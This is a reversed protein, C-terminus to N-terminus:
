ANFIHLYWGQAIALDQHADLRGADASGVHMHPLAFIRARGQGHNQPVLTYSADDVDITFLAVYM